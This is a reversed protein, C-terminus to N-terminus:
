VSKIDEFNAAQTLLELRYSCHLQRIEVRPWFVKVKYLFIAHETVHYSYIIRFAEM